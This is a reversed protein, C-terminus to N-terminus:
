IAARGANDVPTEAERQVLTLMLRRILASYPGVLRWYWRFTRRAAASPCAVRDRECGEHRGRGSEVRCSWTAKAFGPACFGVFEEANLARIGSDLQWFKAVVGLVIQVGPEEGLVVFGGRLFDELTLSRVPRAKGTLVHPLWRVAFLGAVLVSRSLDVERLARYVREPSANVVREHREVVDYSPMFRDILVVGM